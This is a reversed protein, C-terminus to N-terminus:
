APYAPLVLLAGPFSQYLLVPRVRELYYDPHGCRPVHTQELEFLDPM